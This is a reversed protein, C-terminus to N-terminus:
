EEKKMRCEPKGRRIVFGNRKIWELAAAVTDGEFGKSKMAYVYNVHRGLDSALQKVCIQYQRATQM